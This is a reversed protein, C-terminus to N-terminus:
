KSRIGPPSLRGTRRYFDQLLAYYRTLIKANLDAPNSDWYGLASRVAWAVGESKSELVEPSLASARASVIQRCLRSSTLRRLRLWVTQQVDEAVLREVAPKANETMNGRLRLPLLADWTGQQLRGCSQM